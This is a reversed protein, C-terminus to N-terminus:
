HASHGECTPCRTTAPALNLLRAAIPRACRDCMGYLGADLRSLAYQARRLDSRLLPSLADRLASDTGMDSAELESLALLLAVHERELRTM